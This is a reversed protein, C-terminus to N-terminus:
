RRGHGDVPASRFLVLGACLMPNVRRAFRAIVRGPWRVYEEPRCDAEFRISRSEPPSLYFLNKFWSAVGYYVNLPRVAEVGLGCAEFLAVTEANSIVWGSLYLGKAERESLAIRRFWRHRYPV